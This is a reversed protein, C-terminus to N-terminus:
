GDIKRKVFEPMFVLRESVEFLGLASYAQMAAQKWSEIYSGGLYGFQASQTAVISRFPLPTFEYLLADHVQDPIVVSALLLESGERASEMNEVVISRLLEDDIGFSSAVILRDYTDDGEWERFQHVIRSVKMQPNIINPYVWYVGVQCKIKESLAEHLGKTFFESDEVLTVIRCSASDGLKNKSLIEKGVEIGCLYLMEQHNQGVQGALLSTLYGEIKTNQHKEPYPIYM